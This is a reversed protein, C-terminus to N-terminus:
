GSWRGMPGDITLLGDIRRRCPGCAPAQPPSPCAQHYPARHWRMAIGRLSCRCLRQLAARRCPRLRPGALHAARGQRGLLSGCRGRGGRKDAHPRRVPDRQRDVGHPHPVARGCGPRPPLRCRDTPDGAEAVARLRVQLDPRRGTRSSRDGEAIPDATQQRSIAVFLYLRGQETRVEAIDLHFFGIPYAKFRSRKTKPGDAEPLRAIGHRQLCRHLSSRTLHPLTPQLAYLCDDLLLLTYRRLAVIVAEDEPSLVTSRPAKPGM